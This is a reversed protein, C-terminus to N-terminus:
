SPNLLVFDTFQYGGFVDNLCLAYYYDGEEVEAYEFSLPVDSVVIQRGEYPEIQMEENEDWFVLDYLPVIVDGRQFSQYGRAPNGNDDYGESYGVVLGFPNDENFVILIYQNIGNITAPIVSRTYKESVIQDYMAVMQGELTPWSGDFLGYVTGDDWDVYVDQTLGYDFYVNEGYQDGYDEAADQFLAAEAYSLNELDSPSLQVTYASGGYADAIQELDQQSPEDVSAEGWLDSWSTTSSASPQQSNVFGSIWSLTAEDSTDIEATQIPNICFVYDGGLLMDLYSGVFQTYSPMLHLPDYDPMYAVASEKTKDPLLISLGCADGINASNRAYYVANQISSLLAESEEPAIDAYGRAVAALDVMDSAADAFDGFSRMGARARSLRAFNGGELEASLAEGFSDVAKSLADIASLDIASLTVYDSPDEELATEIFSDVVRQCLQPTMMSPHAALEALWQDYAWGCGPELEESAIMYDAYPKMHNAMEFTAMLCADFGIFDLWVGSAELASSLTEANLSNGTREDYCVGGTAGGGHDWLVLGYRKAPFQELAFRIFDSLTEPAGMDLQGLDDDVICLGDAVVFRQSTNSDVVENQWEGTGGTQVLVTVPGDEPLGASQMEVLDTTAAGFRTELDTGCLYVMVVYESVSEQAYAFPSMSLAMLLLLLLAAISRRKM